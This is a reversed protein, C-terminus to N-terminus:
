SKLLRRGADPQPAGAGSIHAGAEVEGGMAGGDSHDGEGELLGEVELDKGVAVPRRRGARRGDGNVDGAVSVSGGISAISSTNIIRFGTTGNLTSLNLNAAFGGAKGFVVYAGSQSGLILDDINDGDTAHLCVTM